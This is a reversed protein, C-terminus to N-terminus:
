FSKLLTRITDLDMSYDNHAAEEASQVGSFVSRGPVHTFSVRSAEALNSFVPFERNFDSVFSFARAGPRCFVLNSFAAGGPGVIIEADHFLKAQASFSLDEPYVSYFGSENFLREVAKANQIGRGLKARRAVFIREPGPVRLDLAEVVSKRLFRVHEVSVGGLEYSPIDFRDPLRIPNTPAWLVGVTTRERQDRALIPNKFGNSSVVTRIAENLTDPLDADVVIPLNLRNLEPRLEIALLKPIYEILWHFYNRPVRGSLLFGEPIRRVTQHLTDFICEKGNLTVPFVFAGQGAVGLHDAKAGLDLSIARDGQTVVQGNGIIAESLRVLDFGPIAVLTASKTDSNRPYVAPVRVPFDRAPILSDSESPSQFFIRAFRNGDREILLRAFAPKERFEPFNGLVGGDRFAQIIGLFLQSEARPGSVPVRLLLAKWEAESLRGQTYFFTAIVIADVMYVSPREVNALLLAGKLCGFSTEFDRGYFLFTARGIPSFKLFRLIRDVHAVGSKRLKGARILKKFIWFFPFLFLGNERWMKAFPAIKDPRAIVRKLNELFVGV